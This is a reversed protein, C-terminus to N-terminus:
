GDCCRLTFAADRAEGRGEGLFAMRSGSFRWGACSNPAKEVNQPLAVCCRWPTLGHRDAQGRVASCRQLRRIKRTIGLHASSRKGNSWNVKNERMPKGGSFLLGNRVAPHASACAVWVLLSVACTLRRRLWGTAACASLQVTSAETRMRSPSAVLTHLRKSAQSATPRCNAHQNRPVTDSPAFVTANPSKNRYVNDRYTKFPMAKHRM